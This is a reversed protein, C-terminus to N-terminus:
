TGTKKEEETLKQREPKNILKYTDWAEEFKRQFERYTDDRTFERQKENWRRFERDEIPKQLYLGGCKACKYRRRNKLLVLSYSCRPCVTM